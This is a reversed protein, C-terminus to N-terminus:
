FDFLNSFTKPKIIAYELDKYCAQESTFDLEEDYLSALKCYLAIREKESVEIDFNHQMVFSFLDQNKTRFINKLGLLNIINEVKENQELAEIPINGAMNQQALKLNKMRKRVKFILNHLLPNDRMEDLSLKSRYLYQKLIVIDTNDNMLQYFNTKERLLFMDKLMKLRFVKNVIQVRVEVQNLYEIIQQQIEILNHTCDQINLKLGHVIYLLQDDALTRFIIDDDLLYEVSRVAKDLNDRKLRINNLKDRKLEYNTELKYANDILSRLTKVNQRCIRSIIKLKNKIKRLYEDKKNARKEKLLYAINEKIYSISEEIVSIHISDDVELFEEFFDQLRSDLGISTHQRSLLQYAELRALKDPKNDVHELILEESIDSMRKDFLSSFLKRHTYLESLLTELKTFKAM